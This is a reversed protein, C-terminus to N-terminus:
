CGTRYDDESDFLTTDRWKIAKLQPYQGSQDFFARHKQDNASKKKLSPPPQVCAIINNGKLARFTM